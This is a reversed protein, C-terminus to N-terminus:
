TRGKREKIRLTLNQYIVCADAASAVGDNIVTEVFRTYVSDTNFVDSAVTPRSVDVM